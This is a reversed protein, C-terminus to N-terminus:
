AMDAAGHQAARPRRRHYDRSQMEVLRSAARQFEVRLREGVYLREPPAAAAMVLTIGGDYLADILILLRRAADDDAAGLVPVGSVLVTQFLQVIELYDEAARATTCLAAFDFWVIASAADVIAIERGNVTIAGPGSRLGDALDDFLRRLAAATQPAASDLYTHASELRRLRYDVEGTLEIVDLQAELLSIAPLFRERQLGGAYLRRPPQNSTAVVVVGCDFLAQLLGSLLMADGIDAVFFEDLCLVQTRAALRRAVHVLPDQRRPGARLMAHVDRMFRYFHTRQREPFDLSAYFLDLLQTKGRGVAGWLYIGRPAARSSGGLWRRARGFLKGDATAARQRLAAGLADLRAAVALQAADATRRQAAIEERLTAAVSGVALTM